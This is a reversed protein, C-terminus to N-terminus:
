LDTFYTEIWARQQIYIHISTSSCRILVKCYNAWVKVNVWWVAEWIYITNNFNRCVQQYHHGILWLKRNYGAGFKLLEVISKKSTLTQCYM